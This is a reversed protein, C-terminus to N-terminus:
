KISCERFVGTEILAINEEIKQFDKEELSGERSDKEDPTFGVSKIMNEEAATLPTVHLYVLDRKIAQGKEDMIIRSYFSYSNGDNGRVLTPQEGYPTEVIGSALEEFVYTPLDFSVPIDFVKASLSGRNLISELLLTEPRDRRAFVFIKGNHSSDIPVRNGECIGKTRLALQKVRNVYTEQKVHEDVDLKKTTRSPGIKESM